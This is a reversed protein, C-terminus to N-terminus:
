SRRPAAWVCHDHERQAAPLAIGADWGRDLQRRGAAFRRVADAANGGGVWSKDGGADVEYTVRISVPNLREDLSPVPRRFLLRGSFPEFEYDTFRTLPVASLVLAPQNRDRTVIEVRETGSVGNPNSVPYPGSIGLAAYEDIVQRLSDHSAFLNVMARANEFHHQVGTLARNYAGLAQAEPSFSSTQLDGYM